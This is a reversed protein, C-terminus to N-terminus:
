PNPWTSQSPITLGGLILGYVFVLFSLDKKSEFLICPTLTPRHSSPTSTSLSSSLTPAFIFFTLTISRLHDIRRRPGLVSFLSERGRPTAQNRSRRWTGVQGFSQRYPGFCRKTPSFCPYPTIIPLIFLWIFLQAARYISPITAIGPPLSQRM